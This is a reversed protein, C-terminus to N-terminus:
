ALDSRRLRMRAHEARRERSASGQRGLGTKVHTVVRAGIDGSGRCGPQSTELNLSGPDREIVSSSFISVFSKGAQM